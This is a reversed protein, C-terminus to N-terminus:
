GGAGAPAPEAAVLETLRGALASLDQAAQEVQRTSALNQASAQEINEMALAVQEMGTTQQQTSALIQQAAEASETLSEALARIAEGAASVVSEGAESAKVGQEVALVAAQTARQIEGLIGRIEATARKSQDALAKVEAAVVAFGRGAEGAKAAEIGANVALLNSQEALGSVTAVIEAIAESRESLALIQGAVAEMRAKAERATRVADEVAQRGEQSVEATRQVSRAVAQAKAAAVEVTQKVEDVTASTEQVAAQEEAAGSAQQATAALIEAGASALTGISSRLRSTIGRTLAWAIAAGAGLALLAIGGLIWVDRAIADDASRTARAARATSADALSKIRKRVEDGLPFERVRALRVAEAQRGSARAAIAARTATEWSGLLGLVRDWRAREAGSSADRLVTAQRRASALRSSRQALAARDGRVLYRLFGVTASNFAGRLELAALADQQARGSTRFADREDVLAFAGVGSTVVLLALLVACGAGVRRGVTWRSTRM